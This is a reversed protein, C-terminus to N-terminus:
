RTKKLKEYCNPCIRHGKGDTRKKNHIKGCIYCEILPKSKEYCNPCINHGKGDTLWKNHEKGCIYCKILPKTKKHCAGCINHGNIKSYKNHEKGCIYCKILPRSKKYCPSCIHHKNGDTNNPMHVKGCIHCKVLPRLKNYCNTCIYRDKDDTYHQRHKEGCIYCKVVQRSKKYCVPCIYNDNDDTSNPRHEKGCIYCKVLGSLLEEVQEPTLQCNFEECIPCNKLKKAHKKMLKRGPRNRNVMDYGQAAIKDYVVGELTKATEEGLGTIHPNFNATNFFEGDFGPKGKHGSHRNSGEFTYGVYAYDDLSYVYVYYNKKEM